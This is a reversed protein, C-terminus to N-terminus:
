QGRFRRVRAKAGCSEDSCWRRRGGRSTDLFLWGCNLGGCRRLPRRTRNSLLSLAALAVRCLVSDLDGAEKWVWTIGGDWCLQRSNMARAIVRFVHHVNDADPPRDTVESLLVEYLAERTAKARKLAAEAAVPAREAAARLKAAEGRELLGVREAWILLDLYTQLLDPGAYRADLTNVFDLSADGGALRMTKITPTSSM